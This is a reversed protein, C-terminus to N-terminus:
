DIDILNVKGDDGRTFVIDFSGDPNEQTIKSVKGDSGRVILQRWVYGKSPSDGFQLETAKGDSGRIIKCPYDPLDPFYPAVPTVSSGNMLDKSGNISVRPNSKDQLRKIIIEIPKVFDRFHNNAM